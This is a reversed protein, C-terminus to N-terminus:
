DNFGGTELILISDLVFPLLADRVAPRKACVKIFPALIAVFEGMNHPTCVGYSGVGRPADATAYALRSDIIAGNVAKYAM